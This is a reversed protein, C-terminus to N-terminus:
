RFLIFAILIMFTAFNIFASIPIIWRITKDLGRAVKSQDRRLAGERWEEHSMLWRGHTVRRRLLTAAVYAPLGFGIAVCISGLARVLYPFEADTVIVLSLLGMAAFLLFIIAVVVVARKRPPHMLPNFAASAM